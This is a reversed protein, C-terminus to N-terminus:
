GWHSPIKPNHRRKISAYGQLRACLSGFFNRISVRSQAPMEKGLFRALATLM